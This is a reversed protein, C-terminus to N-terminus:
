AYQPSPFKRIIGSSIRNIFGLVWFTALWHRQGFVAKQM